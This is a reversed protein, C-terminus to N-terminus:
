HGPAENLTMTILTAALCHAGFAAMWVNQDSHVSALCADAMATMEPSTEPAQAIGFLLPMLGLTILGQQMTDTDVHGHRNVLIQQLVTLAAHRSEISGRKCMRMISHAAELQVVRFASDPPPNSQPAKPHSTAAALSLHHDPIGLVDSEGMDCKLLKHTLNLALQAITRRQQGADQLCAVHLILFPTRCCEYPALLHVARAAPYSATTSNRQLRSMQSSQLM